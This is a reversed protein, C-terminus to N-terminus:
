FDLSTKLITIPLHAISLKKKEKLAFIEIYGGRPLLITLYRCRTGTGKVSIFHATHSNMIWGVIHTCLPLEKSAAGILKGGLSVQYTIRAALPSRWGGNM